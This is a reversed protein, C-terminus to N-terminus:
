PVYQHMNCQEMTRQMLPLSAATSRQGVPLRMTFKNHRAVGTSGRLLPPPRAAACETVRAAVTTASVLAATCSRTSVLCRRHAAKLRAQSM